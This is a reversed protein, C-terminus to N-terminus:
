IGRAAPGDLIDRFATAKESDAAPDRPIFRVRGMTNPYDAGSKLNPRAACFLMRMRSLTVSSFNDCMLRTNKLLVPVSVVPWEM